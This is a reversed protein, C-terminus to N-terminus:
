DPFIRFSWRAEILRVYDTALLQLVVGAPHPGHGPEPGRGTGLQGAAGITHYLITHYLIIFYITDLM